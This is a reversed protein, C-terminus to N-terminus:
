HRLPPIEEEAMRLDLDKLLDKKYRYLQSLFSHVSRSRLGIGPRSVVLRQQLDAVDTSLRIHELQLYRNM